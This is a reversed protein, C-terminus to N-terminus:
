SMLQQYLVITKENILDKLELVEVNNTQNQILATDHEYVVHLIINDYSKNQQHGHKLWDSTKLHLEINGALELGNLRIRGNFFDPGADHNMEGPHLIIIENGSITFLSQPKVLKHQWIFQLLKENFSFM